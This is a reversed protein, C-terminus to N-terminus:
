LKRYLIKYYKWLIHLHIFKVHFSIYFIIVKDINKFYIYFEGFNEWKYIFNYSKLFNQSFYSKKKIFNVFHLRVEKCWPQGLIGVLVRIDNAVSWTMIM